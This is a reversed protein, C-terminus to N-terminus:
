VLRDRLSRGSQNWLKGCSTWRADCDKQRDTRGDRAPLTDFRLFSADHNKWWRTAWSELKRVGFKM